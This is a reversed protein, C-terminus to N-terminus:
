FERRNKCVNLIKFLANFINVGLGIYYSTSYKQNGLLM